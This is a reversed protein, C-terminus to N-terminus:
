GVHKEALAAALDNLESGLEQFADGKRLTVRADYNGRKLAKVHNRFAITPGILKHTYVVCVSLMMLGYVLLVWLVVQALDRTEHKVTQAVYEGLDAQGVVLGYLNEFGFYVLYSSILVFGITLTLAYLPLKLQLVPRLLLNKLRRSNSPGNTTLQAEALDTM